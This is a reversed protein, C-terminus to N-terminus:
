KNKSDANKRKEILENLIRTHENDTLAYNLTPIASLVMGIAPPITILFFMAAAYKGPGSGGDYTLFDAGKEIARNLKDVNAGSYGVASYVVSSIITAIGASLKTIFSQGSFFVGDTRVGNTYEEYDVCDAIMVSQLVNIGGFSASGFLMCVGVIISWFTTTLDGGSVKYFVFILAFPVAGAISFFNYLSKKEIKKILVPTIGMAVFQGVFLGIAVCGLGILIKFNVGALSGDENYVLINMINGNAYYYTVLTMAVIMLLQIPSRLIGSILIQRFPKNRFMIKFNDIFGYKKESQQVRERTCVGAFEFFISAIVTMIIVTVIFGKQNAKQVLDDYNVANPDLKSVFVSGVAQAIQVVLVGIGGVGASIRALGLIKSRDGEDETMLSTIGWLPIDGVTYCMGWAIYSIAAWAIILVKQSTSDATAYNGNLFTIITIVCIIGPFIILYPRCKGWKSRTKDVITGMMPDNIADWVRAIAFIWGLAMAPLCIVNQFYFYLGTAIINYILNQGFMGVLYGGLEKNTYTNVAKSPAAKSKGAM